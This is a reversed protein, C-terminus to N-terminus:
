PPLKVPSVSDCLRQVPFNRSMPEYPPGPVVHAISLSVLPIQSKRGEHRERKLLQFRSYIALSM